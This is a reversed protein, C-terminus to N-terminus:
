GVEHILNTIADAVAATFRRATIDNIDGDDAKWVVKLNPDDVVETIDDLCTVYVNGLGDTIVRFLTDM